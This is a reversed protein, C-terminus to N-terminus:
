LSQLGIADHTLSAGARRLHAASAEFILSILCCNFVGLSSFAAEGQRYTGHYVGRRRHVM